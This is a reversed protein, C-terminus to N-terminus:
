VETAVRPVILSTVLLYFVFTLAVSFALGANLVESNASLSALGRGDFIIVTLDLFLVFSFLRLALHAEQSRELLSLGSSLSFPSQDPV